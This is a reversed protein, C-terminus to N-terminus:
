YFATTAYCRNGVENESALEAKVYDMIDLFCVIDGFCAIDSGFALARRRHQHHLHHQPATTDTNVFVPLADDRDNGWGLATLTAQRGNSV